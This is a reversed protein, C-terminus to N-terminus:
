ARAGAHHPRLGRPAAPRLRRPRGGGGDARQLEAKGVTRRRDLDVNVLKFTTTLTQAPELEGALEFGFGAFHCLDADGSADVFVRGAIRALGAKTAVLLEEVRGDRVVAGQLFAHLLM